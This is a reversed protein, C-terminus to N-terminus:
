KSLDATSEEKSKEPGEIYADGNGLKATVKVFAMPTTVALTDGRDEGGFYVVGRNSTINYTQYTYNLANFKFDGRKLTVDLSSLASNRITVGGEGIDALLASNTIGGEFLLYGRNIKFTCDAKNKFSKVNINGGGVKVELQKLVARDTQSYDDNLYIDIRHTTKQDGRWTLFQRLGNFNIKANSMNLLSMFGVSEDVTLIGGTVSYAYTNTNYGYMEIYSKEAGGYINVEADKLVLSIKNIGEADLVNKKLEDGDATATEEFLEIGADRAMGSAIYCTVIGGVVLLTALCLFIISTPKM